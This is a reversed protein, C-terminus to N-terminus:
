LAERPEKLAITARRHAAGLKGMLVSGKHWSVEGRLAPLLEQVIEHAGLGSVPRLLRDLAAGLAEAEPSVSGTYDSGQAADTLAQHQEGRPGLHELAQHQEGRPGLHELVLQAACREGQRWVFSACGEQLLTVRQEELHHHDFLRFTRGECLRAVVADPITALRLALDAIIIQPYVSEAAELLVPHLDHYDAFRLTTKHGRDQLDHLLLAASALGDADAGHAILLTSPAM